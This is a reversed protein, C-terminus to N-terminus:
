QVSDIRKLQRFTELAVQPSTRLFQTEPTNGEVAISAFIGDKEEGDTQPPLNEWFSAVESFFVKSLASLSGGALEQVCQLARDIDANLFNGIDEAQHHIHKVISSNVDTPLTELDLVASGVDKTRVVVFYIKSMYM